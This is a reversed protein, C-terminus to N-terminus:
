FAKKWPDSSNPTFTFLLTFGFVTGNYFLVGIIVFKTATKLQYYRLMTHVNYIM